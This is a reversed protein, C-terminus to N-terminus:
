PTFTTNKMIFPQMPVFTRRLTLAYRDIELMEDPSVAHKSPKFDSLNVLLFRVTNRIRRYTEIVRKIIEDSVSIEGSYDSSAVWLRLIDAGFKKM